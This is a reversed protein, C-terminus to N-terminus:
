DQKQKHIIFKKFALAPGARQTAPLSLQAIFLGGM